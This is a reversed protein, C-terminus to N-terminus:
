DGTLEDITGQLWNALDTAEDPHTDILGDIRGLTVDLNMAAERLCGSSALALFAVMVIMLIRKM